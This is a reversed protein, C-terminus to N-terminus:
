KDKSWNERKLRHILFMYFDVAGSIDTDIKEKYGKGYDTDPVGVKAKLMQAKWDMFLETLKETITM